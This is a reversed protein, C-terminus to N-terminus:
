FRQELGFCSIHDNWRYSVSITNEVKQIHRYYYKPLIKETERIGIIISNLFYYRFCPISSQTVSLLRARAQAAYDLESKLNKTSKSWGKCIYAAKASDTVSSLLLFNSSKRSYYCLMLSVSSIWKFIWLFFRILTPFTCSVLLNAKQYPQRRTKRKVHFSKHNEWWPAVIGIIIIIFFMKIHSLLLIFHSSRFLSYHVCQDIFFKFLTPSQKFALSELLSISAHKQYCCVQSIKGSGLKQYLSITQSVRFMSQWM